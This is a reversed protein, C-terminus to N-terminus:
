VFARRGHSDFRRVVRGGAVVAAIPPRGFTYVLDRVDPVDCIVLDARMSVAIAGRRGGLGVAFAANRTAANLAEAPSLRMRIAALHMAEFMSPTPCTGPNYDTAVAVAVGADIMTRAPADTRSRLYHSVGPLLVAVTDSAALQQIEPETVHDLHDASTAGLEVALGTAGTSGLEDAHVKPKLGSAATATLLERGDAVSFFGEDIFIDHFVALKELIVAPAITDLILNLYARKNQKYEPPIAHAALLTPVVTAESAAAAVAIARLSRLEDEASLGYGSKTEVTTTGLDLFRELRLRVKLQLEADSAARVGRVSSLIGGGAAAIQQYTEGRTKREFDEERGNVFVPHTHADVFGPVIVGGKADVTERGQFKKIIEPGPGVGVVLGRDVAVAGGPILAIDGLAERRAPRTPPVGGPACTAISSAGRVVLDVIVPPDVGTPAARENTM